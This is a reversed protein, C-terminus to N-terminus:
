CTVPPVGLICHCIGSGGNNPHNSCNECPEPVYGETTAVPDYPVFISEKLKEIFDQGIQDVRDTEANRKGEAWARAVINMMRNKHSVLIQDIEKRAEDMFEDRTM